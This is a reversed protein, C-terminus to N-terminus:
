SKVSSYKSLIQEQSM